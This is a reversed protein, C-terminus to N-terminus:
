DGALFLGHGLKVAEECAGLLTQIGSLAQENSTGTQVRLCEDRLALVEDPLYTAYGYVDSMRALMPYEPIAQEFKAYYREEWEESSEDPLPPEDMAPPCGLVDFFLAGWEAVKLDGQYYDGSPLCSAHLAASPDPVAYITLGVAGSLSPLEGETMSAEWRWSADGAESLPGDHGLLPTAGEPWVWYKKDEKGM